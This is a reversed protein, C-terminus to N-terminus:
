HNSLIEVFGSWRFKKSKLALKNLKNINKLSSGLPKEVFININQKLLTISEDVHM